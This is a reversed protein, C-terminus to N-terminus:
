TTEPFRAHDRSFVRHRDVAERFLLVDQQGESLDAAGGAAPVQVQKMGHPDFLDHEAAPAAYQVPVDFDALNEDDVAGDPVFTDRILVKGWGSDNVRIRLDRVPDNGAQFFPVNGEQPSEDPRCVGNEPFCSVPDGKALFFACFDNFHFM